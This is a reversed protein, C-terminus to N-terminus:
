KAGGKLKRCLENHRAIAKDRNIHVGARYGCNHIAWGIDLTGM